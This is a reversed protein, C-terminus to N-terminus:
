SATQIPQGTAADIITRGSGKAPVAGNPKREPPLVEPTVAQAPNSAEKAIAYAMESNLFDTLYEDFRKPIQVLKQWLEPYSQLIQYMGDKGKSLALKYVM